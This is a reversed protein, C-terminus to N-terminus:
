EFFPAEMIKFESEDSKRVSLFIEDWLPPWGGVIASLKVFKVAHVGKALAISRDAHSQKTVKGENSIFLKGDIWLQAAKTSFYYVGDEPINIYGTLVTSYYDEPLLERYGKVRYKADKPVAIYETEDATKGDLESVKHMVGKYYEAKM